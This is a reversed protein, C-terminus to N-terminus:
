AAMPSSPSMGMGIAPLSVTLLRAYETSPMSRVSGGGSARSPIPSFHTPLRRSSMRRCYGTASRDNEGLDPDISLGLRLRAALVEGAEIAKTESSAWLSIVAAVSTQESFIQM